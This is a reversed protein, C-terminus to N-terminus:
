DNKKGQANVPVVKYKGTKPDYVTKKPGQAASKKVSALARQFEPTDMENRESEEVGQFDESETKNVMPKGVIFQGKSGQMTTNDQTRLQNKIDQPSLGYKQSATNVDLRDLVKGKTDYVVVTDVDQDEGFRQRYTNSKMSHRSGIVKHGEGALLLDYMMKIVAMPNKLEDIHNYFWSIKEPKMRRAPKGKILQKAQAKLTEFDRIKELRKIDDITFNDEGAGEAMAPISKKHKEVGMKADRKKDRHAGAGSATVGLNKAVPNRTKVRTEAGINKKAEVIIFEKAKM